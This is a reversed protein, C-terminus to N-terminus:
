LLGLLPIPLSVSLLIGIGTFIIGAPPCAEFGLILICIEPRTAKFRTLSVPGVVTGITVSFANLVKITPNLQALLKDSQAQGPGFIQAHLVAVIADPSQRTEFSSLLPHSTLDKGTKRKYVELASDFIVQYNSHSAAEPSTQSMTSTTPFYYSLGLTFRHLAITPRMLQDGRQTM